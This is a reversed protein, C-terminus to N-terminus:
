DGREKKRAGIIYRKFRQRRLEGLCVYKLAPQEILCQSGMESRWGGEGM